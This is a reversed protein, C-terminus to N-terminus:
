GASSVRLEDRFIAMKAIMPPATAPPATKPARLPPFLEGVAKGGAVEVADMTDVVTIVGPDGAM